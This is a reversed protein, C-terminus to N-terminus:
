LWKQKRSKHPVVEEHINNYPIHVGHVQMLFILHKYLDIEVGWANLDLLANWEKRSYLEDIYELHRIDM